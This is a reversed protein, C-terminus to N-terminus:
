ARDPAPSYLHETFRKWGRATRAEVAWNIAGNEGPWYLMRALGAPMEAHFCVAQPHVDAGDALTGVSRKGDSTFSWFTLVGDNGTGYIAHELYAGGSFQWTADLVVYASGLPRSFIRTCRVPGRPSESLATWRGVLPELPGLRGRGKKWHPYAPNKM